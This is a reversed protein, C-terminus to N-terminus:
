FIRDVPILLSRLSKEFDASLHTVSKSDFAKEYEEHRPKPLSLAMPDSSITFGGTQNLTSHGMEKLKSFKSIWINKVNM